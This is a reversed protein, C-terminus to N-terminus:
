AAEDEDDEEMHNFGQHDHVKYHRRIVLEMTSFKDQVAMKIGKQGNVKMHCEDRSSEEPM